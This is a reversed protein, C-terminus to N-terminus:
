TRRSRGRSSIRPARPRIRCSSAFLARLFFKRRSRTRPFGRSFVSGYPLRASCCVNKGIHRLERRTVACQKARAHVLNHWRVREERIHTCSMPFPRLCSRLSRCRGPIHTKGDFSPARLTFLLSDRLKPLRVPRCCSTYSNSRQQTLPFPPHCTTFHRSRRDRLREPAIQTFSRELICQLM